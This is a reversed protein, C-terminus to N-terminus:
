AHAPKLELPTVPDLFKWCVIGLLYVAASLYLILDWNNNTWYLIYGIALASVVFVWVAGAHVVYELVAAAPVLV